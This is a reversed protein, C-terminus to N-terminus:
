RWAPHRAPATTSRRRSAARTNQPYTFDQESGAVDEDIDTPRGLSDYTTIIDKLDTSDSAEHLERTMNGFVDYTYTVVTDDDDTRSTMRGTTANDSYTTTKGGMSMSTIAGHTDYTMSTTVGNADVSQLVWGLDNYTTTTEPETTAGDREAQAETTRGLLDLDSTTELGDHSQQPDTTGIARGSSDYASAADWPSYDGSAPVEGATQM